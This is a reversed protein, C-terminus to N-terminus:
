VLCLAPEVAPAVPRDAQSADRRDHAREDRDRGTDGPHREPPERDEREEAAHDPAEPERADPPREARAVLGEVVVEPEDVDRDGHKDERADRDPEDTASACRSQAATGSIGSTSTLACYAGSRSSSFSRIASTRSEPRNMRPGFTLAKSSSAAAYRPTSCAIPTALPVSAITIASSAISM